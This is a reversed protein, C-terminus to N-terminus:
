SMKLVSEFISIANQPTLWDATVSGGGDVKYIWIMKKNISDWEEKGKRSVIVPAMDRGNDFWFIYGTSLEDVSTLDWKGGVSIGILSEFNKITLIMDRM